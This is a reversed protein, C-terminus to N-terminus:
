LLQESGIRTFDIPYSLIMGNLCNRGSAKSKYLMADAGKVLDEPKGSFSPPAWCLGLSCTVKIQYDQFKIDAAAILARIVEAKKMQAEPDRGHLVLIYEDGGYRCAFDDWEFAPNKGIIQGITKIVHSGVMHNMTDNVKKFHDLDMMVLAVGTTGKMCSQISVSYRKMFARMNSLGTLEDTLTRLELKHVTARLEDALLKHQFVTSIKACLVVLSVTASIVDDAGARYNRVALEDFEEDVSAMVIIGTHRQGDLQRVNIIMAESHGGPFGMILVVDPHTKEIIKAAAQIDTTFEVREALQGLGEHLNLRLIEGPQRDKAVILIRM